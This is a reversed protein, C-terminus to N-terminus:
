IPKHARRSMVDKDKMIHAEEELANAQALVSLMDNCHSSKDGKSQKLLRTGIRNMVAAAKHRVADNPALQLRIYILLSFSSTVIGIRVLFRLAPYM